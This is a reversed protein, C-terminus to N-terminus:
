KKKIVLLSYQYDSGEIAKFGGTSLHVMSKGTSSEKGKTDLGIDIALRGNKVSIVDAM